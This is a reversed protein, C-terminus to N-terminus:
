WPIQATSSSFTSSMSTANRRPGCSLRLRRTEEKRMLTPVPKYCSTACRTTDTSPLGSHVPKTWIESLVGTHSRVHLATIGQDDASKANYKGTDFLKQISRLEGLRALGMLDQEIPLQPKVNELEHSGDEATKGNAMTSEKSETPPSTSPARSPM